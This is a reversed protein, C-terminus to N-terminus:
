LGPLAQAPRRRPDSSTADTRTETGISEGFLDLDAWATVRRGLPDIALIRFVIPADQSSVGAIPIPQSCLGGHGPLASTGFSAAIGLVDLQGSLRSDSRPRPGPILPEWSLAALRVPIGNQERVRAVVNLHGDRGRSGAISLTVRARDTGM